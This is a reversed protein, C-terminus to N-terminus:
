GASLARSSIGGSHRFRSRPMVLAEPRNSAPLAANHM